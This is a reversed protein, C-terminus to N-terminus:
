KVKGNKGGSKNLNQTRINSKVGKSIQGLECKFTDGTSKLTNERVNDDTYQKINM